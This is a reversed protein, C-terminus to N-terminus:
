VAEPAPSDTSREPGRHPALTVRALPISLRRRSAIAASELADIACEIAVYSRESHTVLWRILEPTTALHRRQFGHEFLAAMLPEDPPSIRFVPSAALRSRLDPLRITWDPPAAEAVFLAPRREEQARNWAHFLAAEEIRDANDVVTGGSKAAFIRALLSRGSRRPGVLLGTMVPWAGWHELGHVARANADSVLFEDDRPDAPWALPLGLQSM